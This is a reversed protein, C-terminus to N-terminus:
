EVLIKTSVGKTGSQVKVLYVGAPLHAKLRIRAADTDPTRDWINKGSMDFLMVRDIHLRTPNEVYVFGDHYHTSVDHLQVQDAKLDDTPRFALYFRDPYDGQPLNVTYAQNLDIRHSQHEQVDEIYMETGAPVNQLSEVGFSVTGDELLIVHLPLRVDRNLEGIAQIVFDSTDIRFFMDGHYIDDIMKGDYGWDYGTTTGPRIALFLYRRGGAPDDFYFHLDTLNSRMFVANSGDEKMYERQSNQITITGDGDDDREVFFGQGVPIYQGPTKTGVTNSNTQWDKAKEGGSLTYTAYGGVYDAL